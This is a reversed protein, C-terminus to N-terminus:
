KTIGRKSSQVFEVLYKVDETLEIESKIKEISQSVNLGSNYIIRITKKLLEITENSFGRRRLGVSNIGGFKLPNGDFLGFPIIDQSIKSSSGIMAHKGIRTFQHVGTIGGIIAWDGVEVHGGLSTGNAIVCNNGVECDHAIHTYAMLLNKNGITTKLSEETGRSITVCERFTNNSGIFVETYEGHFKLDQPIAGIVAGPFFLNNEGIRTGNYITVHNLLQTGNEIKVDEDIFCFPGIKVDDAIIAKNSVISSPHIEPM